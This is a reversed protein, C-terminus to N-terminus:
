RSPLEFSFILKKTDEAVENVDVEFPRSPSNGALDEILPNIRVEMVSESWKDVDRQFRIGREGALIEIRGVVESGDQKVTLGRKLLAYDLPENARMILPDSSNSHPLEFHWDEPDPQTHDKAVARFRKKYTEGLAGGDVSSWNSDVRLEYELGEELIAGLEVKLNVGSKQRGPHFWLTLQRGDESWLETHRFPRGVNEEKDICWLSFFKFIDGQRMPQDFLLYFKLHNAPLENGTPFIQTLKPQKMDITPVNWEVKHVGGGFSELDLVALYTNGPALSFAPTFVTSQGDAAYEGGMAGIMDGSEDMLGFKLLSPSVEMASDKLGSPLKAHVEVDSHDGDIMTISLPADDDEGNEVKDVSKRQESLGATEAQADVSTSEQSCGYQGCCLLLIPLWNHSRHSKLTWPVKMM